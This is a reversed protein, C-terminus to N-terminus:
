FSEIKFIEDWLGREREKIIWKQLQKGSDRRRLRRRRGHYVGYIIIGKAGVGETPIRARRYKVPVYKEPRTPPPKRRYERIYALLVTRRTGMNKAQMKKQIENASYGQRVYRKIVTQKKLRIRPKETM